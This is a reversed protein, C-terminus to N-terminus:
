SNFLLVKQGVKYEHKLIHKDHWHKTRAKYIRASKYAANHFEDMKNVQLLRKEEAAEMDFNLIKMSWYARHELEVPLQCAKTFVLSYLSM